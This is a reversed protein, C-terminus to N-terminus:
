EVISLNQPTLHLTITGTNHQMNEYETRIMFCVGFTIELTRMHTKNNQTKTTHIIYHKLAKVM